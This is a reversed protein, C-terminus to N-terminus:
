RDRASTASTVYDAAGRCKPLIGQIELSLHLAEAVIRLARPNPHRTPEDLFLERGQDAATRLPPLLDIVQVVTTDLQQFLSPPWSEASPGYVQDAFPFVAVVLKFQQSGSLRGLNQIAQRVREGRHAVAPDGAIFKAITSDYDAGVQRLVIAKVRPAVFQYLASRGLWKKLAPRRLMTRGEAPEMIDNPNFGLIVLDPQLKIGIREVFAAAQETNYGNV